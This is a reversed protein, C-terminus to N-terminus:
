EHDGCVARVGHLEVAYEVCGVEDCRTQNEVLVVGDDDDVHIRIDKPIRLRDTTMVVAERQIMAMLLGDYVLVGDRYYLVRKGVRMDGYNKVAM